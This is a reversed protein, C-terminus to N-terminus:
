SGDHEGKTVARWLALAQATEAVDHVRLIQVGQAAAALAVAVSGPARASAPHAGSIRGIFGKRSAGLLVPCGIGHFISLGNLIALNHNINKGFGIGPDVIIGDRPIGIDELMAVQAALFDYVDLLVDDYRPNDQMTEPDGQAHMVCVPLGERLCFHALMPDYTFGSVDNVIRAGARVAAEAVGSKRTDVSIPVNLSTCIAKIVPEIRAIEASVPVTKAGPRTSEGGIDILDAGDREMQEAHRLAQTSSHHQGGDSFSDPTVNLIGMLRPREMTVGAIGTRPRTLRDLVDPPIDSAPIIQIGGARDHRAAHTFWCEGGALVQAEDPRPRSSQALPRYYVSM